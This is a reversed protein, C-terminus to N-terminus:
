QAVTWALIADNYDLRDGKSPVVGQVKKSFASFGKIAYLYQVPLDSAVIQQAQDYLQKRRTEDLEGSAQKFVQDLQPNSYGM